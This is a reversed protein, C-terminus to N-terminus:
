GTRGLTIVASWVPQSALSWCSNWIVSSPLVAFEFDGFPSGSSSHVMVSFFFFDGVVTLVLM